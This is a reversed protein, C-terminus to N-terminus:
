LNLCDHGGVDINKVNSLLGLGGLQGGGGPKWLEYLCAVLIDSTGLYQLDLLEIM